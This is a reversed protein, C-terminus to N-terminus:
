SASARVRFVSGRHDVVYLEGNESEGFSSILMSTNAMRRVRAPSNALASMAFVEGTCFDGFFYGGHMLPFASGRYVYGGTVSCRGTSGHAYEYLPSAKGTRSCGSSPRFCHRGELVRWGFNAGRGAGSSSKKARDIEEYRGQGVDGIWLDGTLRDFSWRWPNRLGRAWIADNGTKGVYPNSAPNVYNRGSATRRNINIRLLKGLLSNKNQARNGPDGSSGGDGTGIYLYGDPGFAMHGGNHNGFPHAIKLILRSGTKTARNSNSSSRKYERIVTDGARDTYYVYFKRNTEYSPHFALGLLGQEGGKSVLSRIDLFPTGLVRGNRLIKIRGGQEVIFLRGSGDGAHTVLVPSSLGTAVRAFSIKIAWPSFGPVLGPTALRADATPRGAPGAAVAQGPLLISLAAIAGIFSLLRRTTKTRTM